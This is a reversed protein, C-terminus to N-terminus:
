TVKQLCELVQRLKMVEIGDRAQYGEQVPAVV